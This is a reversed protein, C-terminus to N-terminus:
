KSKKAKLLKAVASESKGSVESEGSAGKEVFMDSTEVTAMMAQIAALFASFDDESELSLAAKAIIAVQQENKVVDKIKDTKAKEIAAKKEAEFQAVLDRAKQLEVQMDAFAKQISDFQAKEVMETEIVQEVLKVETTMLNEKIESKVVSASAEENEVSANTSTDGEAKSSAESSESKSVPKVTGLKHGVVQDTPEGDRYIKILAVPEEETANLTVSSDPIDVSGSRVIKTIKGTAMGGSSNWTVMDGVAAKAVTAYPAEFSRTTKPKKVRPKKKDKESKEAAASEDAEQKKMKDFAKEIMEQDLLFAIYEEEDLESLVTLPNDSEQMSKIVEFSQMKSQIYDEYSEAVEYEDEPKEYGLMRALVERNEGYVNMFRELFEPVEMTVRIQQMKEIAEESFNVSKLILSYDHGNAPGGIDDSVLAIHAGSKEFSIDSLKRKAKRTPKNM